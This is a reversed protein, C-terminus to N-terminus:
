NSGPQAYIDELYKYFAGRAREFKVTLGGGIQAFSCIIRSFQEEGKLKKDHQICTLHWILKCFPCGALLAASKLESLGVYERIIVKDQVAVYTGNKLYKLPGLKYNLVITDCQACLTAM